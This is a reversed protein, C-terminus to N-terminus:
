RYRPNDPANDYRNPVGDGDRDRDRQNPVGDRDRDGYANPGRVVHSREVWHERQLYWRGGDTQHWTPAYYVYGSRAPVWHGKRWVHKNGRYDWYGPAWVHGPRPIPTAEYRVAPPAFNLYVETDAFVPKATAGVMLASAVMASMVLKRM